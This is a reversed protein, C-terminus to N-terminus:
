PATGPPIVAVAGARKGGVHDAASHRRNGRREPRGAVIVIIGTVRVSRGVGRGAIITIRRTVSIPRGVRRGVSDHRLTAGASCGDRGTLRAKPRVIRRGSHICTIVPLLM